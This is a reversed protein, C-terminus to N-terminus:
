VEGVRLLPSAIGIQLCDIRFFLRHPLPNEANPGRIALANKHESSSFSSLSLLSGLKYRLYTSSVIVAMGSTAPASDKREVSLSHWGEILKVPLSTLSYCCIVTEQFPSLLSHSSVSYWHRFFFYLYQRLVVNECDRQDYTCFRAKSILSLDHMDNTMLSLCKQPHICFSIDIKGLNFYGFSGTSEVIKGKM